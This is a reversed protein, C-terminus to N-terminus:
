KIVGVEARRNKAYASEGGGADAPMEEGFSVTQIDAAGAGMSILEERLAQARREGLARNYEPTGREDTFGAVIISKGGGKLFAAIQEVKGREGPEVAYSDYGFYVAPFMSRDVNAAFFSAGSREPLPSGSVFDYDGTASGAQKKKFKSCGTGGTTVLAAVLLLPLATRLNM